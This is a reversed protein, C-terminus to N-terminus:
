VYCMDCVLMHSRYMVRGCVIESRPFLFVPLFFFFFFFNGGWFSFVLSVSSKSICLFGWTCRVSFVFFGKLIYTFSLLVGLLFVMYHVFVNYLTSCICPTCIGLILIILTYSFFFVSICYMAISYFTFSIFLECLM